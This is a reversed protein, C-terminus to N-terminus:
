AIERHKELAASAGVGCDGAYTIAAKLLGPLLRAGQSALGIATPSSSLTRVARNFRRKAAFDRQQEAALWDAIGTSGHELVRLAALAALEGGRVAFRLGDGTMPDVFGAADGAPILGDISSGTADVALPGLVIPARVLRRGIFRRGLVPDRAIERRLLGEPDRLDGPSAFGAVVLCVNVLRGPLPAVGLYRGRRVHMEGLAAADDGTGEFYAGVAWRRPRKPHASLGLGFALTSRRGDAAITVKARWEGTSREALGAVGTVVRGRHTDSVLASRVSVGADFAAGAAIADRVLIWDLDRRSLARGCLGDPYRGEIAVGGEGTLLMGHLPLGVREIGPALELRRLLGLTGPNLSDGCLKDRPFTARDVLRVRAGARAAVAAAVAGAPGAGIVLVDDM